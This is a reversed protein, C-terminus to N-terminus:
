KEEKKIWDGFVVLSQVRGTTPEIFSIEFIESGKEAVVNVKDGAKIGLRPFDRTIHVLDGYNYKM